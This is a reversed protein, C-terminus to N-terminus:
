LISLVGHDITFVHWDYESFTGQSLDITTTSQGPLYVTVTADSSEILGTQHYDNVIFSYSGNIDYITTTEPGYGTTDDLDLNAVINGGYMATKDRFSVHIDAGSDTVGFLHSDLDSPTSGWTLVIRIEGEVLEPSLVYDQTELSAYAGLYLEYSATVYGDKSVEVDYQGNNLMVSYEGGSNTSTSVPEYGSGNSYYTLTVDELEDGTQANVVKGSVTVSPEEQGAESEKNKSEAKRSPLSTLIDPTISCWAGERITGDGDCAARITCGLTNFRVIRGAEQSTEIVAAHDISQVGEFSIPLVGGFIFGADDPSIENPVAHESVRGSLIADPQYSTNRYIFDAPISELRVIISDGNDIQSAIAYKIRYDNYNHVAFLGLISENLAPGAGSSKEDEEGELVKLMHQLQGKEKSKRVGEQLVSVSLNEMGEAEYVRAMGTYGNQRTPAAAIADAYALLANDYDGSMYFKDGAAVKETYVKLNHSRIGLFAGLGVLMMSIIVSIIIIARKGSGM